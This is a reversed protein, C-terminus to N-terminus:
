PRAMRPTASRSRLTAHTRSCRCVRNIGSVALRGCSLGFGKTRGLRCGETRGASFLRRRACASDLIGRRPVPAEAGARLTRSLALM